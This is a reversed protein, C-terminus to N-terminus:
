WSHQNKLLELRHLIELCARANHYPCKWFGAKEHARLPRGQHDVRFYWEGNERDAFYRDIFEMIKHARFLDEDRTQLTYANLLGVVAEAQAWWELEDDKHHGERDDEYRLAGFPLYGQMAADAIGLSVQEIKKILKSNGTVTAAEHLLWSCEIDNMAVCRPSLISKLTNM